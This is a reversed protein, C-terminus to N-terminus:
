KKKRVIEIKRPQKGYHIVIASDTSNIIKSAEVGIKTSLFIVSVAPLNKLNMKGYNLVENKKNRLSNKHYYVLLYFPMVPQKEWFNIDTINPERNFVAIYSAIIVRKYEALSSKLYKLHNNILQIYIDVGNVWYKMEKESPKRGLADMYACNITESHLNPYEVFGQRHFQILQGISFNGRGLWYNLEEPSADRGFALVYAAHIRQDQQAFSKILFLCLLFGLLFSKIKGM